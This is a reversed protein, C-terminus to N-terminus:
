AKLARGAVTLALRRPALGSALASLRNGLGSVVSAPTSGRELARRVTAVVQEPTATRGVVANRSGVVDFFETSTPGPSVALVRLPSTRTEYALAETLSLVFAKTAGYVAMAPTPQYAATSALTVLAGRGDAMLDPLFARTLGAVASINLQIMRDMQAPDQEAFPGYSGFGANNVLTQVRIGRADLEARLAAGAGPLALDAALPTARIGYRQELDRALETLRDLRRAVLVVDAGRGAWQRAFEAGLGASAGTILAVTGRYMMSM